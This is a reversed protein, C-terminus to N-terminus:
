CEIVVEVRHVESMAVRVCVSVVNFVQVLQLGVRLFLVPHSPSSEALANSSIVALHQYDRGELAIRFSNLVPLADYDSTSHV